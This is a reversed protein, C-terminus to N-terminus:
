GFILVQRRVLPFQLKLELIPQSENLSVEDSLAWAVRDQNWEHALLRYRGGLPLSSLIKSSPERSPPNLNFKESIGSPMEVAYVRVNGGTAPTGDARLITTNIGGAPRTPIDILQPGDGAVVETKADDILYGILQDQSIRLRTGIPYNARMANERLVPSQLFDMRVKPDPHSPRVGIAGRAPAQAATGILRIVVERTARVAVPKIQFELDTVSKTVVLKEDGDPLALTVEEGPARDNIEFRGADDLIAQQGSDSHGRIVSFSYRLARQVKATPSAKYEPLRDIEGTIRGSLKLPHTLKITAPVQGAQVEQAVSMGYGTARVAFWYRSDEHLEDLVVHGTGDTEGYVTWPTETYWPSRPDGFGDSNGNKGQSQMLVFRAQPVPRGTEADVVDFAAVDSKALVITATESPQFKRNSTQLQFGRARTRIQYSTLGIANLKVSGTEDTVLEDRIWGIMSGEFDLNATVKLRANPIAQGQEDRLLLNVTSGRDLVFEVTRSEEGSRLDLTPGSAEAYGPCKVGIKLFGPGFKYTKRFEPVSLDNGDLTGSSSSHRSRSHSMLHMGRPVPLGDATRVVVTVSFQPDGSKSDETTIKTPQEVPAATTNPEPPFYQGTAENHLRELEAVRRTPSMLQAATKVVADTGWGLAVATLGLSGMVVLLGSWSVRPYAAMDPKVLRQVRDTLTGPVAPDAFSALVSSLTGARQVEDSPQPADLSAAFEVLTRAVTLSEGCVEAALADCCAEREVRIQHSLWWVAPNFFLVSEILMQVLNVLVDYRRIHALEHALIVRWQDPPIGTLMASPVLICPWLTGIISPVTVRDSIILSVARRFGLRGYLEQLLTELQALCENSAPLSSQRWSRVQIIAAATRLIMVSAGILWGLLLWNAWRHSWPVVVPSVGVEPASISPGLAPVTELTSTEAFNTPQTNTPHSSVPISSKALPAPQPDLRLVSGTALMCLVVALLGILSTLYRTNASRAPITRLLLLVVAAIALGQWLSHILVWALVDALQTLM